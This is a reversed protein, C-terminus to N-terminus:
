RVGLQNCNQGEEFSRRHYQPPTRPADEGFDYSPGPHAACLADLLAKADESAMGVPPVVGCYRCADRILQLTERRQLQMAECVAWLEASGSEASLPRLGPLPPVCPSSETSPAAICPRPSSFCDPPQQDKAVLVPCPPASGGRRKQRNRM